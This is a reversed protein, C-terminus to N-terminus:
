GSARRSRDRCEFPRGPRLAEPDIKIAAMLTVTAKRVLVDHDRKGAEIGEIIASAMVLRALDENKPTPKFEKWAADLADGMVRLMEPYYIGASSEENIDNQVARASRCFLAFDIPRSLVAPPITLGVSQSNVPRSSPM